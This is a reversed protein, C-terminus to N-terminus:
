SNKFRIENEFIKINAATLCAHAMVLAPDGLSGNMARGQDDPFTSSTVARIM